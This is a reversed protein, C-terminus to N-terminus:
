DNHVDPGDRVHALADTVMIRLAVKGAGYDRITHNALYVVDGKPLVTVRGGEWRIRHVIVNPHLIRWRSPKPDHEVGRTSEIQTILRNCEELNNVGEANTEYHFHAREVYGEVVQMRSLLTRVYLAVEIADCRVLYPSTFGFGEANRVGCGVLRVVVAGSSIGLTLDEIFVKLGYRGELYRVMFEMTATEVGGKRYIWWVAVALAILLLVGVAWLIQAVLSFLFYVGYYATSVVKFPLAIVFSLLSVVLGM